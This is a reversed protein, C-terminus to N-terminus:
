TSANEIATAIRKVIDPPIPLDPERELRRLEEPSLRALDAVTELPVGQTMRFEALMRGLPIGQILRKHDRYTCRDMVVQIGAASAEAAAEPHIVGDQLWLVRVKKEISERVIEPVHESRRFVDVIDVPGPIHRLTPYAPRLLIEKHLPNVPIITYGQDMLYTAIRHSPRDQKPSLGLVAVVKNQIFIQKLISDKDADSSADIIQTM